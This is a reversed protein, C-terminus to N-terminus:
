QTHRSLNSFKESGTELYNCCVGVWLTVTFKFSIICIICAMNSNRFISNILKIKIKIHIQCHYKKWFSFLDKSTYVLYCNKIEYWIGNELPSFRQPTHFNYPLSYQANHISPIAEILTTLACKLLFFMLERTREKHVNGTSLM